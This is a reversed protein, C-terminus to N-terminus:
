DQPPIGINVLISPSGFMEVTKAVAAKCSEEDTVDAHVVASIGEEEDIM